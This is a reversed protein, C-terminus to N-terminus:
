KLDGLMKLAEFARSRMGHDRRCHPCTDRLTNNLILQIQNVWSLVKERPITEGAIQLIEYKRKIAISLQAAMAIIEAADHKMATVSLEEGDTSLSMGLNEALLKIIARILKIEGDTNDLFAETDQESLLEKLRQHKVVETYSSGVERLVIGESSAGGHTRCPGSGLHTTGWGAQKLCQGGSKKESGCIDGNDPLHELSKQEVEKPLTTM